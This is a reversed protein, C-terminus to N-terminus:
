RHERVTFVGEEGRTWPQRKECGHVSFLPWSCPHSDVSNPERGQARAMFLYHTGPKLSSLMFSVIFVGLDVWQDAFRSTFLFRLHDNVALRCPYLYLCVTGHGCLPSQFTHQFVIFVGFCVYWSSNYVELRASRCYESLFNKSYIATWNVWSVWNFVHVFDNRSICINSNRRFEQFITEALFVCCRVIATYSNLSCLIIETISAVLLLLDYAVVLSVNISLQRQYWNWSRYYAVNKVWLEIVCLRQVCCVCTYVWYIRWPINLDIV